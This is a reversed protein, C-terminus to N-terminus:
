GTWLSLHKFEVFTVMFIPGEGVPRRSVTVPTVIDTILTFVVAAVSEIGTIQTMIDTIRRCVYETGRFLNAFRFVFVYQLFM